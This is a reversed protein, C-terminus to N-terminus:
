LRRFRHARVLSPRELRRGDGSAFYILELMEASESSLFLLLRSVQLQVISCCCLKWLGQLLRDVSHWWECELVTMIEIYRMLDRSHIWLSKSLVLLKLRWPRTILYSSRRLWTVQWDRATPPNGTPSDRSEAFLHGGDMFERWQTCLFYSSVVLCHASNKRLYCHPLASLTESHKFSQCKSEGKRFTM